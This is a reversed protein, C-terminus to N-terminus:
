FVAYKATLEHIANLRAELNDQEFANQIEEPKFYKVTCLFNGM